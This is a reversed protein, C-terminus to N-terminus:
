ALLRQSEILEYYLGKNDLLKDHPGAEVVRGRELVVVRDAASVTSLRHAIILTTRSQMLRALAQQVLSESRVDLASTAEDLILITPDRLLARAIAVRQKQGGSLQVGREGVVSDLGDPFESVFGWANAARLAEVIEEDTADLDGYLVNERVSGSFLVPEQSVVGTQRRLVDPDWDPLPIGDVRVEGEQPDYFRLMLNAVTSKGSGSPGVLAMKEGPRIQFSVDRLAPVDPRTPYSFSVHEFEIEGRVERSLPNDSVPLEPRRDILEFVRRAAGTAKMFDTWLGSLAALAFAVMLTYLIFATLQGPTLAENMVLYGGYILILAITFYGLFTVGGSFIGGLKAREKALRYSIEVAEDYREVEHPERGFGRVTRIGAIAEEAVSTSDALADQFESSLERLKRGYYVAAVVVPPVTLLMVAGLRVSTIFMAGVGGLAQVGYRLAMSVNSTVASQLTQTDSTLRSTINGTKEADFFGVEQGIVAGYLKTRLDAVIREGVVTFLYHRLGVFFAQLFFLVCLGVGISTMSWDGANALVDDVLLRAAQPYLLVVGAGLFLAVTAVSLAKWHPKALGVLRRFSVEGARESSTDTETM